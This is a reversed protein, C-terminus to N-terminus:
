EASFVRRAGQPAPQAKLFDVTGQLAPRWCEAPALHGCGEIVAISSGAIRSHIREGVQLPILDDRSGWVVLTPRAIRNLKFDLLDRGDMMAAVSRRIVWAVQGNRRVVDRAVFDPLSVPKPSLIALLRKVGAIDVPTFVDAADAAEFYVGASDYVVLRDVMEPHDITLKMAIWGGMSWGAVDPRALHMAKMFGAMTEEELSISYSVDPAASRGYGLLDPAYVHFGSASLGTLLPAWDEGRAGLGHVLVLPTGAGGDKPPVEFYHLRQGDVDVYESHVGHRWLRFRLIQDNVWLPSRYFVAGCILLLLATAGVWRLFLKM